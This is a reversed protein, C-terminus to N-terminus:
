KLAIARGPAHGIQVLWDDPRRRVMLVAEQSSLGFASADFMEADSVFSGFQVTLTAASEPSGRGRRASNLSTAQGGDPDWRQMPIRSVSDLQCSQDPLARGPLRFAMATIGVAKRSRETSGWAPTIPGSPRGRHNIEVEWDEEFSADSSSADDVDSFMAGKPVAGSSSSHLKLRLLEAIDSPTPYDFVLTGPLSVGLAAELTNRLEVAGLSDLGSSMLPADPSPPDRQGTVTRAADLVHQLLAHSGLDSGFPRHDVAAVHKGVESRRGSDARSRQRQERRLPRLSQPLSPQVQQMVLESIGSITPYDFLLTSPLSVGFSAELTNRLEVARLSDLGADLLPADPAIELHGLNLSRM